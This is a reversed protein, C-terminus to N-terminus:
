FEKSPHTASPKACNTVPHSAQNTQRKHEVIAAKNVSIVDFLAEQAKNTGKNSLSTLKFTHLLLILVLEPEEYKHEDTTDSAQLLWQRNM